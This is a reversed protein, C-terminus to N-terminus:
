IGANVLNLMNLTGLTFNTWWPIFVLNELQFCVSNFCQTGTTLIRLEDLWYQSRCTLIVLNVSHFCQILKLSQILSGFPQAHFTLFTRCIKDRLSYLPTAAGQGLGKGWPPPPTPSTNSPGSARPNLDRGSVDWCGFMQINALSSWNTFCSLSESSHSLPTSCHFCRAPLMHGLHGLLCSVPLLIQTDGREPNLTHPNLREPASRDFKSSIKLNCM